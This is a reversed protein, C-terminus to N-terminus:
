YYEYGPCDPNWRRCGAISEISGFGEEGVRIAVTVWWGVSSDHKLGDNLPIGIEDIALSAAPVGVRRQNSEHLTLVYWCGDEEDSSDEEYDSTILSYLLSSLKLNHYPLLM